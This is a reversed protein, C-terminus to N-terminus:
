PYISDRICGGGRAGPFLLARHPFIPSHPGPMVVILHQVTLDVGEWKRTYPAGRERPLPSIWPLLLGQVMQPWFYIYPSSLQELCINLKNYFPSFFCPEPLTLGSLFYYFSHVLIQNPPPHTHTYM